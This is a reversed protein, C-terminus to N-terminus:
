ALANEYFESLVKPLRSLAHYDEVYQRAAQGMRARLVSSEVLKQLHEVASGEDGQGAIYGTEGHRVIEAVGGTRCAVVPLGCAMAELIVNPTGEFDSTLVFIDAARYEQASMAVAGRFEVVHPLLGLDAAM